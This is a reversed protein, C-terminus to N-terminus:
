ISYTTLFHVDILFSIMVSFLASGIVSSILVSRIMVSFLVSSIM